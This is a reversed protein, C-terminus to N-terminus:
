PLPLAGMSRKSAIDICPNDNWTIETAIPSHRRGRSLAPTCRAACSMAPATRLARYAAGSDAGSTWRRHTSARAEAGIGLCAMYLLTDAAIPRNGTMDDAGNVEVAQQVVYSIRDEDIHDLDFEYSALALTPCLIPRNALQVAQYAPLRGLGEASAGRYARAVPRVSEGKNCPITEM